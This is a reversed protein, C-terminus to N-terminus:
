RHTVKGGIMTCLIDRHTAQAILYEYPDDVASATARVIAIDAYKGPELSGIASELGLAEAGALTALRVLDCASPAPVTKSAAAKERCLARLLRMEAFLDFSSNSALSDTGIGLRVGGQWLELVPAAGTQLLHNSRPCLAVDAEADALLAVDADSLHVCHVALTKRDLLGCRRIHEVPSIGRGRSSILDHGGVRKLAEALEGEGTEVLQCEAGTEALHIAVPLQRESALRGLEELVESSLTYVSHPSLGIKLRSGEALAHAWHLRQEVAAVQERPHNGRLGVAEIYSIGRLGAELAAELGPGFTVIDGMCTVGAELLLRAGRKASRSWDDRSFRRSAAVLEQIWSLFPRAESLPGMDTYELHTHVNVLGPMAIAQGFDLVQRDPNAALVAQRPGVAQIRDGHIAVAGDVIPERSLPLVIDATVIM